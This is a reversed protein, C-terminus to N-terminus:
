LIKSLFHKVNEAEQEYNIIEDFRQRCLDGHRQGVEPDMWKRIMECSEHHTMSDIDICTVGHEFLRLADGGDSYRTHESINTVIPRGSYMWGMNTHGLGGGLKTSWGLSAEQMKEAVPGLGELWGDPCDHGFYSWVFEPMSRKFAEFIEPFQYPSTIATINKGGHRIPTKRYKNVNLEQHVLVSNKVNGILPVSHIANDTDPSVDINGYHCILKAKPQFKDRLKRWLDYHFVPYTPLIIDFDMEKFRDLTVSRAMYDHYACQTEWLGDEVEKCQENMGHGPVIFGLRHSWDSRNCAWVKWWGGSEWEDGIPRYLDFGLRCEFLRHLSYYLDRHHMDALVKLKMVWVM